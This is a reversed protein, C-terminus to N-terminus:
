PSEVKCWVWTDLDLSYTSDHTSFQASQSTAGGFLVLKNPCYQTLTHGFRPLPTNGSVAVIQSDM